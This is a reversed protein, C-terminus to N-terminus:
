KSGLHAILFETQANKADNSRTGFGNHELPAGTQPFTLVEIKETSSTTEYHERLNSLFVKMGAWPVVQDSESHVALLPIPRFNKIHRTPDLQHLKELPHEPLKTTRRPMGAQQPYYLGELWGTTAEVAACAFTHPNCLRRLAVMGGASMGGIGIRSLDFANKFLPSRLANLVSDIETLAQALVDLTRDPTQLAADFREGHGPLDISCTAIGARLWRLYRGPDLEKNVTRGHMWFMIPAPTPTTSPWDPHTLLTPVESPGLKIIRTKSALESPFRAFRPDM